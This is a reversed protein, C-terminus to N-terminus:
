TTKRPRPYAKEVPPPPTAILPRPLYVSLRTQLHQPLAPFVYSKVCIPPHHQHHPPKFPPLQALQLHLRLQPSTLLSLALLSCATSHNANAQNNLFRTPERRHAFHLIVSTCTRPLWGIPRRAVGSPYWSIDRSDPFCQVDSCQVTFLDSISDSSLVM